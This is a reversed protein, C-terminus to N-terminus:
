RDEEPVGNLLKLEHRWADLRLAPTVIFRPEKSSKRARTDRQRQDRIYRKALRTLENRLYIWRGRESVGRLAMHVAERIRELDGGSTVIVQSLRRNGDDDLTKSYAM